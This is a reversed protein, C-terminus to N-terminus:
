VVRKGRGFSFIFTYLGWIKLAERWGGVDGKEGAWEM